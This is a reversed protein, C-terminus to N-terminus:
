EAVQIPSADSKWKKYLKWENQFSINLKTFPVYWGYKVNGYRFNFHLGFIAFWHGGIKSWPGKRFPVWRQYSIRQENLWKNHVKMLTFMKAIVEERSKGQTSHVVNEGVLAETASNSALCFYKGDQIISVPIEIFTKNEPHEWWSLREVQEKNKPDTWWNYEEMM